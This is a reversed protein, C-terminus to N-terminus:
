KPAFHEKLVEVARGYDTPEGTNPITFFIEQVKPGASHLMLARRRQQHKEKGAELILGKSNAYLDFSAMWRKWRLGTQEGEPDFRTIGEVRETDPESM